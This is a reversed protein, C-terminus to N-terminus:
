FRLTMSTIYPRSWRHNAENEYQKKPVMPLVEGGSLKVDAFGKAHPALSLVSAGKADYLAIASANCDLKAKGLMSEELTTGAPIYTVKSGVRIDPIAPKTRRAM